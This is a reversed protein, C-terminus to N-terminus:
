TAQGYQKREERSMDRASIIRILTGSNRLTFTLHLRRGAPTVGLANCRIEQRSHDTDPMLLLDPDDFVDEAETQSVDHRDYNKRDNGADWQFGIVQSFDIM